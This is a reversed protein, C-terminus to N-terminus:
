LGAMRVLDDIELERRIGFRTLAFDYKVPDGPSFRAFGETIELATVADAQRRRTLGLGRGITHMHIDLPVVLKEPAIGTWGGPDVRDKRVMWRLFLHLRKCASGKGPDPLLHGATGAAPGFRSVFFCLAPIVTPDTKQLGAVFCANLSGYRKLVQRTGELLAVMHADGAFRHRFGSFIKKFLAPSGRRIFDHPAGDMADLVTSVSKVIQAVRGYALCAAVLGAIERDRADDFRYICELPDPSVYERRNYRRYLTELLDKM